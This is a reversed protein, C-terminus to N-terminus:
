FKTEDYEPPLYLMSEGGDGQCRGQADSQGCCFEERVVDNSRALNCRRVDVSRDYTESRRGHGNDVAGRAALNCRCM